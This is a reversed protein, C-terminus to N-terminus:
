YKCETRFTKGGGVWKRKLFLITWSATFVEDKVNKTYSIANKQIINQLLPLYGMKSVQKNIFIAM